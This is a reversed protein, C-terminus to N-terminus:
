DSGDAHPRTITIRVSSTVDITLPRCGYLCRVLRSVRRAAAVLVGVTVLAAIATLPYEVAWLLVPTAAVLAYGTLIGRWDPHRSAPETLRNWPPDTPPVSM